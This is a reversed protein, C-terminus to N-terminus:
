GFALLILALFHSRMSGTLQPCLGMQVRGLECVLRAKSVGVSLPLGEVCVAVLTSELITLWLVAAHSM